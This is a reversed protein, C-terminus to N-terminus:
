IYIHYIDNIYIMLIYILVIFLIGSLQKLGIFSSTASITLYCIYLHYAFIYIYIYLMWMYTCKLYPKKIGYAFNAVVEHSCHDVPDLKITLILTRRLYVFIYM